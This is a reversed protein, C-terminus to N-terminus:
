KHEHSNLERRVNFTERVATDDHYLNCAFSVGTHMGCRQLPCMLMDVM